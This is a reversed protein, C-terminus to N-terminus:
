TDENVIATSCNIWDVECLIVNTNNAVAHLVDHHGMEGTLYLDARINNLVSSGSGACIAIRSVLISSSRAIRLHKLGLHQKVRQVLVDLFVPSDLEHIRGSGCSEMNKNPNIVTTKGSGLGSALWDNIGNQCNDISTHPSYIGIGNQICKMVLSHKYDDMLLRKFSSFIPPHYSVIVGVQQQMAEYLVSDTLDITLLVKSGKSTPPDLLIGTNDWSESLSLPAFQEFALAVRKLLSM